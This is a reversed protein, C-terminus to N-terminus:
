RPRVFCTNGPYGNCKTYQSVPPPYLSCAGNCNSGDCFSYAACGSEGLAACQAECTARDKVLIPPRVTSPYGSTTNACAGHGRCLSTSTLEATNMCSRCCVAWALCVHRMKSPVSGHASNLGQVANQLGVSPRAPRTCTLPFREVSSSSRLKMASRHRVFVIRAMEVLMTHRCM